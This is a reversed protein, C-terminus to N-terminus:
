DLSKLKTEREAARVESLASDLTAMASDLSRAQIDTDQYAPFTVASVEFVKSISRIHRTPHDTGLGEWEDGDVLYMYSMGTVDGREVASYLEAARTNNETDLDIRTHLGDAGVTLQMTSNENNNRSRALPLQTTDHNVLFRVDRMDTNDLAGPDIIEDFPGIDTAKNFVIALGELVHGREENVSANIDFNYQREEIKSKDIVM